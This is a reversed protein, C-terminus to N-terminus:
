PGPPQVHSILAPSSPRQHSHSGPEYRRRGTDEHPASLMPAGDITEEPLPSMLRSAGVWSRMVVWLGGGWGQPNTEVSVVDVNLRHCESGPGGFLHGKCFANM